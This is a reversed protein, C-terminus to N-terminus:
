GDPPPGDDAPQADIVQDAQAHINEFFQIAGNEISDEMAEDTRGLHPSLMEIAKKYAKTKNQVDEATPVPIALGTLMTAVTEAEGGLLGNLMSGAAEKQNKKAKRKAWLNKVTEYGKGIALVAGIAGLILGGTTATGIALAAISLGLILTTVGVRIWRRTTEWSQQKAAHLLYPKLPDGEELSEYAKTFAAFRIKADRARIANEAIGFVALGIGVFGAIDGIVGLTDIIAGTEGLFKAAKGGAATAATAGHLASTVDGATTADSAKGDGTLLPKSFQFPGNKSLRPKQNIEKKQISPGLDSIPKQQLAQAGLTDAEKELGADDNINTKGKLQKTAKVRGEKQQVVHGLEHPLHKEQGPGLHIDTGQAYAHANLQAPKDSNRHVKVDDMSLGSLNEMGSKLNDPLGTKNEQRQIPAFKASLSKQGGGASSIDVSKFQTPFSSASILASKQPAFEHSQGEEKKLQVSEDQETEANAKSAQQQDNNAKEQAM